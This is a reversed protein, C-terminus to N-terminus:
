FATASRSFGGLDLPPAFGAEGFGVGSRSGSDTSVRDGIWFSMSRNRHVGAPRVLSLDSAALRGTRRDHHLRHAEQRILQCVLGPPEPKQESEPGVLRVGERQGFPGDREGASMGSPNKRPVSGTAQFTQELAVRVAAAGHIKADNGAIVERICRLDAHLRDDIARQGLRPLIDTHGRQRKATAPEM